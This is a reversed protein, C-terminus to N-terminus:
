SSSGTGLDSLFDLSLHLQLHGLSM